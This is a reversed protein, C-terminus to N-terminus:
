AVAGDDPSRVPRGDVEHEVITPVKYKALRASLRARFEPRSPIHAGRPWAIQACVAQGWREDSRAMVTVSSIEPFEDLVAAEVESPYVHFSGTNIMGDVRGALSLYGDEDMTAVDGLSCWGDPDAFAASVCGSRVRLETSDGENLKRLDLDVGEVRRGCSRALEHEGSLIRAHDHSDLVTIPWGGEFRGYLQTLSTGLAGMAALMDDLPFPAGGYLIHLDWASLGGQKVHDALRTVMGPVMFTVSAGQDVVAASVRGPDFKTVIVQPLAMRIFPFTGVLGTAYQMQQVTLFVADDLHPVDYTRARFLREALAM